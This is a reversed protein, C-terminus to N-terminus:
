QRSFRSDFPPYPQNADDGGSLVSDTQRFPPAATRRMRGRRGIIRLARDVAKNGGSQAGSELLRSAGGSNRHPRPGGPGATARPCQVVSDDLPPFKSVLDVSLVGLEM